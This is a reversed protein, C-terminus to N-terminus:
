AFLVEVWRRVGQKKKRASFSFFLSIRKSGKSSIKNSLHMGNYIKACVGLGEWGPPTSSEGAQSLCIHFSMVFLKDVKM